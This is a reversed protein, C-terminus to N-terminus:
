MLGFEKAVKQTREKGFYYEEVPNRLWHQMEDADKLIEDFEDNIENKSSHRYIAQCIM